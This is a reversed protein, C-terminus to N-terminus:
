SVLAPPSTTAKPTRDGLRTGEAGVWIICFGQDVGDLVDAQHVLPGLLQSGENPLPLHAPAPQTCAPPLRCPEPENPGHPVIATPLTALSVEAPLSAGQPRGQSREGCPPEESGMMCGGGEAWLAQEGKRIRREGLGSFLGLSRQAGARQRALHSSEGGGRRM